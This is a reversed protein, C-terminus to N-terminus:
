NGGSPIKFSFSKSLDLKKLSHPPASYPSELAAAGLFKRPSHIGSMVFAYLFPIGSFDWRDERPDLREGYSLPLLRPLTKRLPGSHAGKSAPSHGFPKLQPGEKEVNQRGKYLM